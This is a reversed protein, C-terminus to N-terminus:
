QISRNTNQHYNKKYSLIDSLEMINLQTKNKINSIHSEVTRNSISYQKAIVKASKGLCIEKLIINEKESLRNIINDYKIILKNHECCSKNIMLASSIKSSLGMCDSSTRDICDYIGSRFLEKLSEKSYDSSIFIIPIDTKHLKIEYLINIYDHDKIDIDLLIVAPINKEYNLLFKTPSEFLKIERDNSIVIDSYLKSLIPDSNIIYVIKRYM